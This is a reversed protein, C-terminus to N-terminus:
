RMVIAHEPLQMYLIAIDRPESLKLESISALDSFTVNRTINYVRSQVDTSDRQVLTTEHELNQIDSVITNVQFLLVLYICLLGVALTVFINTWGWSMWIMWDYQKRVAVPRM